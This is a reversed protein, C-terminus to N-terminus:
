RAWCSDVIFYIKESELFCLTYMVFPARLLHHPRFAMRIVSLLSVCSIFWLSAPLGVVDTDLNVSACYIFVFYSKPCTRLVFAFIGSVM